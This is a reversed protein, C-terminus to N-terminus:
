IYKVKEGIRSTTQGMKCGPLQFETVAWSVALVDRDSWQLSSREEYSHRRFGRVADRM